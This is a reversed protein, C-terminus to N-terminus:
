LLAVNIERNSKGYTVEILDSVALTGDDNKDLRNFVEELRYLTKEDVKGMAVLMFQLFEHYSVDGNRAVDM